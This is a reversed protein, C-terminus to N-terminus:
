RSKPEPRLPIPGCRMGGTRWGATGATGGREVEMVGGGEWGEEEEAM